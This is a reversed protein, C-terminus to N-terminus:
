SQQSPFYDWDGRCLPCTSSMAACADRCSRHLRQKCCPLQVMWRPFGADHCIPCFVGALDDATRTLECHYCMHPDGDKIFYYGCPCISWQAVDNVMDMAKQLEVDDTDEFEYDDIVICGTDDEYVDIENKAARHVASDSDDDDTVISVDFGLMTGNSTMPDNRIAIKLRSPTTFMLSDNNARLRRLCARFATPDRITPPTTNM